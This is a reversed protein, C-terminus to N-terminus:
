GGVADGDRSHRLQRFKGAGIRELFARLEAFKKLSLRFAVDITLPRDLTIRVRNSGLTMSVIEAGGNYDSGDHWEVTATGPFEFNRSLCVYPSCRDEQDQDPPITDFIVQLIEGEIADACNVYKSKFALTM